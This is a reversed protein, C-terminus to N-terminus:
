RHKWKTEDSRTHDHENSREYGPALFELAGPTELIKRTKAKEIAKERMHKLIWPNSKKM